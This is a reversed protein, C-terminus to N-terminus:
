RYIKKCLEGTSGSDQNCDVIEGVENFPPRKNSDEEHDDLKNKTSNVVVDDKLSQFSMKKEVKCYIKNVSIIYVCNTGRLNEVKYNILFFKRTDATSISAEM